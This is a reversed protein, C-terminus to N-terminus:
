FLREEQDYVAAITKIVFHYPGTMEISTPAWDDSAEQDVDSLVFTFSAEVRRSNNDCMPLQWNQVARLVADNLLLQGSLVRSGLVRCKSDLDMEVKVEGQKHSFRALAPYIPLIVAAEQAVQKRSAQSFKNQNTAIKLGLAELDPPATTVDVKYFAGQQASTIEVETPSWDNTPNGHLSFNFVFQITRTTSSCPQFQTYLKAAYAARIVARRLRQPGDDAVNINTITCSADLTLDVRIKGEVGGLRALRPYDPIVLNSLVPINQSWAGAASATALFLVWICLKRKGM